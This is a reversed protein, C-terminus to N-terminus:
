QNNDIFCDKTRIKLREMPVSTKQGNPTLKYIDAIVQISADGHLM